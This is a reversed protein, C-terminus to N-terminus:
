RYKKKKLLIDDHPKFTDALYNAFINAKEEDPHAWKYDPNRLINPSHAYNTLYSKM